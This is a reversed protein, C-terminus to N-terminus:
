DSGLKLPKYHGVTLLVTNNLGIVLCGSNHPFIKHEKKYHSLFLYLMFM